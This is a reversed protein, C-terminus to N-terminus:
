RQLVKMVRDMQVWKIEGSLPMVRTIRSIQGNPDSLKGGRASPFFQSPIRFLREDRRNQL